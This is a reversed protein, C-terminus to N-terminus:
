RSFLTKPKGNGWLIVRDREISLVTAGNVEDGIRVMIGNVIATPRDESYIIGNLRFEPGATEPQELKALKVVAPRPPSAPTTEREPASLSPAPTTPAKTTPAEKAILAPSASAPTTGREPASLPPTPATPPKTAPTENAIPAPSGSALAAEREPSALSPTPATAPTPEREPLFLVPAAIPARSTMTEETVATRPTDQPAALPVKEPSPVGTLSEITRAYAPVSQDSQPRIVCWLGLLLALAAAVAYVWHRQQEGFTPAASIGHSPRTSRTGAISGLVQNGTRTRPEQISSSLSSSDSSNVLSVEASEPEPWTEECSGNAIAARWLPLRQLLRLENLYRSEIIPAVRFEYSEGLEHEIVNAVHVATLPTLQQDQGLPPDHHLAVADVVCLPLNWMGVLCGGIEGHNAGFMEKEAEWIAVPQKRALSHVRGYLDDFNTLLVVKGLDHVLGAVFAQSALEPDRTEFLVLDRAILAVNTSHQWLKDFSLYGPKLHSHEAMFQMAKTLVKVADLGLSDVAEVPDIINRPTGLYASNTLRLVEGTLVADEAIIEGVQISTVDPSELAKLVKSYVGPIKPSTNSAPDSGSQKRTSEKPAVGEEIRSKLSAFEIPKPLIQIDGNVKAAILALDAEYALLFRTTEPRRELAKNLLESADPSGLNFDVLLATFSYKKLQALVKAETSAMTPM